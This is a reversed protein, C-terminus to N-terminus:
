TRVMAWPVDGGQQVAMWERYASSQVRAIWDCHVHMFGAAGIVLLTM